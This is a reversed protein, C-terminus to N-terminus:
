VTKGCEKKGGDRGRSKKGGKLVMFGGSNFGGFHCNKKAPKGSPAKRKQTAGGCRCGEEGGHGTQQRKIKGKSRDGVLMLRREALKKGVV